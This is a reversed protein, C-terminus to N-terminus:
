RRGRGRKYQYKADWDIKGFLELIRGQQRREIFERLAENVTEKKTNLGGIELAKELLEDNLALNTAM